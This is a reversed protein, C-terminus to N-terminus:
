RKERPTGDGQDVNLQCGLPCSSLRSVKEDAIVDAVCSLAVVFMGSVGCGVLGIPAYVMQKASKPVLYFWVAALVALISVLSNTKQLLIFHPCAM